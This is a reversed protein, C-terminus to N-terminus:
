RGVKGLDVCDIQIGRFDVWFFSQEVKLPAKITYQGDNRRENNNEGCFNNLFHDQHTVPKGDKTHQQRKMQLMCSSRQDCDPAHCPGGKDNVPKCYFLPPTGADPKVENM